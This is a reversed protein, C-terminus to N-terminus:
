HIATNIRGPEQNLVPPTSWSRTERGNPWRSGMGARALATWIRAPQCNGEMWGCNAYQGDGSSCNCSGGRLTSSNSPSMRRGCSEPFVLLIAHTHRITPAHAAEVDQTRYM